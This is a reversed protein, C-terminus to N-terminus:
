SPGTLRQILRPASTSQMWRATGPPIIVSRNWGEAVITGEQQDVLLAGFPHKPVNGALRIAKKMYQEDGPEVLTNAGIKTNFAGLVPVAVMSSVLNRLLTRREM